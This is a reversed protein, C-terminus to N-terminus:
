QKNFVLYVVMRSFGDIGGHIVIVLPWRTLKHHGDVNLFILENYSCVMNYLFFKGIYWLSNPRLVSYPRRFVRNGHWRLATNLPDLTCVAHRVRERM